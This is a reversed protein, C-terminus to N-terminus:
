LSTLIGFAFVILTVGILFPTVKDIHEKTFDDKFSAVYVIAIITLWLVLSM